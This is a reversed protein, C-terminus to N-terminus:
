KMLLKKAKDKSIENIAYKYKMKDYSSKLENLETAALRKKESLNSM